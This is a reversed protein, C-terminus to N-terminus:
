KMKSSAHGLKSKLDLITSIQKFSLSAHQKSTKLRQCAVNQRNKVQLNQLAYRRNVYCSRCKLYGFIGVLNLALQDPIANNM